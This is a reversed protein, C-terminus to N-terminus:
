TRKFRWATPRVRLTVDCRQKEEGAEGNMRNNSDASNSSQTKQIGESYYLLIYYYLVGHLYIFSKSLSVLHM